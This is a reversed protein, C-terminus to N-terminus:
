PGVRPTGKAMPVPYGEPVTYWATDVARTNHTLTIPITVLMPITFKTELCTHASKRPSTESIIRTYIVLFTM